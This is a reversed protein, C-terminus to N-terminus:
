EGQEELDKVIRRIVSIFSPDETLLTLLVKVAVEPCRHGREWKSITGPSYGIYKAMEQQTVTRGEESSLQHRVRVLIKSWSNAM